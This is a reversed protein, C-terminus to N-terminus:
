AHKGVTSEASSGHSRDGQGNRRVCRIPRPTADDRMSGLVGAIAGASFTELPSQLGELWLVRMSTDGTLGYFLRYASLDRMRNATVILSDLSAKQTLGVMLADMEQMTQPTSLLSGSVLHDVRESVISMSDPDSVDDWSLSGDGQKLFGRAMALRSLHKGLYSPWHTRHM